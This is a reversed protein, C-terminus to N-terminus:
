YFVRKGKKSSKFMRSALRAEEALPELEKKIKSVKIKQETKLILEKWSDLIHQPTDPMIKLTEYQQKYFKLKQKLKM